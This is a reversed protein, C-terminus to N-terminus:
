RLVLFDNPLLSWYIVFRWCSLVKAKRLRFRYSPDIVPFVQGLIERFVLSYYLPTLFHLLDLLLCKWCIRHLVRLKILIIFVSFSFDSQVCVELFAFYWGSLVNILESIWWIFYSQFEILFEFLFTAWQALVKLNWPKSSSILIAPAIEFQLLWLEIQRILIEEHWFHVRFMLEQALIFVCGGALEFDFVTVGEVSMFSVVGEIDLRIQHLFVIKGRYGLNLNILQGLM